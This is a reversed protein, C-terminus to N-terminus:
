LGKIKLYLKNRWKKYDQVAEAYGTDFGRAEINHEQIDKMTLGPNSPTLQQIAYETEGIKMKRTLGTPMGELEKLFQENNM